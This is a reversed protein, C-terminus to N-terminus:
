AKHSDRDGEFRQLFAESNEQSIGIETEGPRIDLPEMSSDDFAPAAAAREEDTLPRSPDRRLPSVGGMQRGMAAIVLQADRDASSTKEKSEIKKVALAARDMGDLTALLTMRDKTEAPMQGDAVIADVLKRRVGQTYQLTQEDNLPEIPEAPKTEESVPGRRLSLFNIWM